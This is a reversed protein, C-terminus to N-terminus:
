AKAAGSDKQRVDALQLFVGIVTPVILIFPLFIGSAFDISRAIQVLNPSHLVCIAIGSVFAAAGEFATILIIVHRLNIASVATLGACALGSAIWLDAGWLGIAELLLYCIGGGILGGLLAVSHNVPPYSGIGLLVAAGISYLWQEHATDGLRSGIAFGILGFTLATCVRWIRWGTTMLGLGIICFPLAVLSNLSYLFQTWYSLSLNM